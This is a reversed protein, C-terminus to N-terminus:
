RIILTIWNCLEHYHVEVKAQSYVDVANIGLRQHEYKVQQYNLCKAVFKIDRKM